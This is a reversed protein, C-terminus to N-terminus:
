LENGKNDRHTISLESESAMWDIESIKHFKTLFREFDETQAGKKFEKDYAFIQGNSYEFVYIYTM